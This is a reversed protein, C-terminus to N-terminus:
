LFPWGNIVLAETKHIRNEYTRVAIVVNIIILSRKKKNQLLKNYLTFRFLLWFLHKTFQVDKNIQYTLYIIYFAFILSISFILRLGDTVMMISKLIDILLYFFAIQVKRRKVYTVTENMFVHVRFRCIFNKCFRGWINSFLIFGVWM